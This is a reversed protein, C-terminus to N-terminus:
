IIERIITDKLERVREEAEALTTFSEIFSTDYLPSFFALKSWWTWWLFKNRREIYYRSVLTKSTTEKVIRYKSQEM